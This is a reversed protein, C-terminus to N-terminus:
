SCTPALRATCTPALRAARAPNSTRAPHPTHTSLALSATRAPHTLHPHGRVEGRSKPERCSHLYILHLGAPTTIPGYM